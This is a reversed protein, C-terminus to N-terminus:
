GVCCAKPEYTLATVMETAVKHELTGPTLDMMEIAKLATHSVSANDMCTYSAWCTTRAPREIISVCFVPTGFGHETDLRDIGQIINILASLETGADIVVNSTQCLITRKLHVSEVESFVLGKSACFAAFHSTAATM